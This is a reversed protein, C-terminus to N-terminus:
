IYDCTEVYLNKIIFPKGCGYILDNAKLKECEEKSAHPNIIENNKHIACRFIGCNKENKFVMVVIGCHPCPFLYFDDYTEILLGM